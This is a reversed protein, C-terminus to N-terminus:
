SLTLCLISKLFRWMERQSLKSEGMNRDIFTIPTEFIRLGARQCRMVMEVQFAYGESKVSNLDITELAKASYARYGSTCDKARLGLLFGVSLNTLKSVLRRYLSWRPASGGPVYRSGIVIDYGEELKEFFSPLYVPDHSLDADMEIVGDNGQALALRFGDKYASGIGKKGVRRMVLIQGTSQGIKEAVEATGDQSEDDVILIRGDLGNSQLVGVVKPILHEINDRENITPIVIVIHM